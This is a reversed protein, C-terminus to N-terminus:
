DVPPLRIEEGPYILDPDGSELRDQNAKEVQDVYEAVEQDTPEGSGGGPAKALKDRAITWITDGEAVDHTNGDAEQAPTAVPPLIIEEGPLILDPDGSELDQNAKEVQDVYEAVEQTTPEGPMHAEALTWITDGEAVERTTEKTNEPAPEDAGPESSEEPGGSGPENAPEREGPGVTTTTASNFNYAPDRLGTTSTTSPAATTTPPRTTTTPAETSATSSAQDPAPLRRPEQGAPDPTYAARTPETPEAATPAPTPPTTEETGSTPAQGAVEPTYSPPSPETAEGASTAPADQPATSDTAQPATSDTAQAAAVPKRAPPGAGSRGDAALAPGAVGLTGGGVMSTALTVAVAHDAVRRALPLTAWSVARVAAPLRTLSALLYLVTSALLWYAMVLGVTRAVAGLVEQVPSSALWEVPEDWGIRLGAFRGLWHLVLVAALELGLLGLLSGTRRLPASRGATGM